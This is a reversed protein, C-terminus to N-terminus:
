ARPAEQGAVILDDEATEAQALLEDYWAPTGEWDPTSGLSARLHQESKSRAAPSLALYKVEARDMAAIEDAYQAEIEERPSGGDVAEQVWGASWQLDVLSRYLGGDNREAQQRM